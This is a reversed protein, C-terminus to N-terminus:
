LWRSLVGIQEPDPPAFDLLELRGGRKLVRRMEWLTRQKEDIDKLHHFMYSSFVRDFAGDAYPLDDSFGRDLRILMSAADAKREARALRPPHPGPRTGSVDPDPRQLIQLPTRPGGRGEPGRGGAELRAQKVLASRAPNGGLLKVMPDYFPLTRDRGAA